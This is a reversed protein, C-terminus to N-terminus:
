ERVSENGHIQCGLERIRGKLRGPLKSFLSFPPPASILFLIIPAVRM